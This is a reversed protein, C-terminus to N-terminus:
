TGCTFTEVKRDVTFYKTSTIGLYVTFKRISTINFCKKKTTPNLQWFSDMKSMSGDGSMDM